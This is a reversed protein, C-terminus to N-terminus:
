GATILIYTGTNNFGNPFNYVQNFLINESVLSSDDIYEDGIESTAQKDVVAKLKYIDGRFSMLVDVELYIVWLGDRYNESKVVSYYRQFEPIYCYNYRLVEQKEFMISPAMISCEERLVGEFTEGEQLIKNVVRYDSQNFYFRVEM